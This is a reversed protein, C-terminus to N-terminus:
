RLEERGVGAPLAGPLYAQGSFGRPLRVVSLVFDPANVALARRAHTGARAAAAYREAYGGLLQGLDPLQRGQWTVAFVKGTRDAYERVRTGTTTTLEHRDYAVTPMVTVSARLSEHDRAISALDGGLAAEAACPVLAASALLALAARRVGYRAGRRPDSHKM